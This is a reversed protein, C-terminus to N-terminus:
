STLSEIVARAGLYSGGIGIVVLVESDSQIKKAAAKIRAFEDQDYEYPYKIWGLFDNGEGTKNLLTKFASLTKNENNKIEETSVFKNVNQYNIKM